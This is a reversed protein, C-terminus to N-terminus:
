SPNLLLLISVISNIFNKSRFLVGHRSFRSPKPSKAFFRRYITILRIEYFFRHNFSIKDRDHKIM